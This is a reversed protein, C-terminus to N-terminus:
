NTTEMHKEEGGKKIKNNDMGSGRREGGLASASHNRGRGAGKKKKRLASNLQGM